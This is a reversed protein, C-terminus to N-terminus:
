NFPVTSICASGHAHGTEVTKSAEQTLFHVVSLLEPRRKSIDGLTVIDIFLCAKLTLYVMLFQEPSIDSSLKIVTAAASHLAPSTDYYVVNKIATVGIYSNSSTRSGCTLLPSCVLFTLILRSLCRLVAGALVKPHSCPLEPTAPDVENLRFEKNQFNVM